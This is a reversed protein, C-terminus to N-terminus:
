YYVGIWLKYLHFTIYTGDYYEKFLGFTPKREYSEWGCSWEGYRLIYYLQKM